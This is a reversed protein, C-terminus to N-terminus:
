NWISLRGMLDAFEALTRVESHVIYYNERMALTHAPSAQEKRGMRADVVAIDFPEKGALHAAQEADALERAAQEAKRKYLDKVFNAM